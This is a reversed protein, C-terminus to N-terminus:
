GVPSGVVVRGVTLGLRVGEIEGADDSGVVDVGVVFGVVVGIYEITRTGM